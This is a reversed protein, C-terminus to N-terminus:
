AKTPAPTGPKGKKILETRTKELFEPTILKELEEEVKECFEDTPSILSTKAVEKIKGRINTPKTAM